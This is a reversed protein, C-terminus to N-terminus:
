GPLWRKAFWGIAEHFRPPSGYINELAKVAASPQLRRSLVENAFTCTCYNRGEYRAIRALMRRQPFTRFFEAIPESQWRIASFSEDTTLYM